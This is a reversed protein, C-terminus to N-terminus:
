CPEGDAKNECRRNTKREDVAEVITRLERIEARYQKRMIDLEELNEARMAVMRKECDKHDEDLRSLEEQLSKIVGTQVVVAGEAASVTVRNTDPKVKYLTGVATIVSVVATVLAGIVLPENM